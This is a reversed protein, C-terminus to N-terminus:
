PQKFGKAQYRDPSLARLLDRELLAPSGCLQDALTEGLLGAWVVGRSAYGAAIFVGPQGSVAGVLPMRDPMSARIAARGGLTEPALAADAGPLVAGPLVTDTLVAGPLRPAPLRAGSLTAGPLIAELRALNALTGAIDTHSDTIGYEYTAGVVAQGDMVAVYGERAIVRQIGPLCGGPLQTIQGRVPELPWAQDPMLHLAEAANALVVTEAQLTEGAETLLQWGDATSQLRAVACGTKLTISAHNLWAHCLSVPAIWGAEPYFVGPMTVDWNALERAVARDAWRAYEAPPATAALAQQLKIEAEGDKALHLVGCRAWEVADLQPWTRLAHLFAARTFRTALADDRSIVPRFVALPNGSAGQAPAAARELVTVAVGRQALAHAVAAGAVGAGIVTVQRPPTVATAAAQGAFHAALCPGKHGL